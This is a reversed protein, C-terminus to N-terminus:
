RCNDRLWGAMLLAEAMGDDDKTCRESRRLNVCPFLEKAKRISAAKIEKKDAGRGFILGYHKKWRVPSVLEVPVSFAYLMGQIWGFNMGFNFCSTVGQGSFAHVCEVCAICKDPRVSMAAMLDRYTEICFSAVSVSGDSHIIAIGGSKGPDIGIYNM